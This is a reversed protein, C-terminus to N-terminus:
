KSRMMTINATVVLRYKSSKTNNSIEKLKYGTIIASKQFSAKILPEVSESTIWIKIESPSSFSSPSISLSELRSGAPLLRAIELLTKSVSYSRNIIVKDSALDQQFSAAQKAITPNVSATQTIAQPKTNSVIFVYVAFCCLALFIFAILSVFTYGLLIFNYRAARTQNKLETPMLNIM